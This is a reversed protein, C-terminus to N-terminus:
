SQIITEYHYMEQINNFFPKVLHFFQAFEESKRFGNMHRDVSVWEIRWIFNEKDENCHSLQYNLCDPYVALIKCASKIAQIFNKHQHTAITYRIYEVTM